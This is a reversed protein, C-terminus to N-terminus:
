YTSERQPKTYDIKREWIAGCTDCILVKGNMTVPSYFLGNNCCTYSKTMKPTVNHFPDPIDNNERWKKIRCLDSCFKANAKKGIPMINHCYSCYKM